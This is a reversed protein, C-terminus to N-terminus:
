QTGGTFAVTRSCLGAAIAIQWLGIPAAGEIVPVDRIGFLGLATSYRACLARDGVLADPKRGDALASRLEGGILIGSLYELSAEARLDGLLVRSRASFLLSETGRESDLATTVGLVFAAIGADASLLDAGGNALRGLISHSRLVGYLEGTMYTSFTDIREDRIRVWKSHTGPFLLLSDGGLDSRLAIAGIAQTEEGRMVDPTGYTQSVGPVILVKTDRVRVLASALEAAGAPATRYPAEMWGNASGIMGSAIVPLDPRSSWESSVDRCATVFDRAGLQMIGWPEARESVVAGDADLLYARLMTTGWDLAILAAGEAPLRTVTGM